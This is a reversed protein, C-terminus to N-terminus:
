KDERTDTHVQLKDTEDIQEGLQNTKARDLIEVKKTIKGMKQEQIQPRKGERGVDQHQDNKTSADCVTTM